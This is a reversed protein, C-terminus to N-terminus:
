KEFNTKLSKKKTELLKAADKRKDRVLFARYWKRKKLDNTRAEIESKEVRQSVEEKRKKQAEKINSLSATVGAKRQTMETDVKSRENNRSEEAGRIKESAKERISRIEQQAEQSDPSRSTNSKARQIQEAEETRARTLTDQYSAESTAIKTARETEISRAKNALEEPLRKAAEKGFREGKKKSAARDAEAQNESWRNQRDQTSKNQEKGSKGGLIKAGALGGLPSRLASGIATQGFRTKGISKNLRDAVGGPLRMLATGAAKKGWKMIGSAGAGGISKAAVLAFIIAGIVIMFNILLGIFAVPTEGKLIIALMGPFTQDSVNTLISRSLMLAVWLLALFVPAFLAQEILTNWWKKSYSDKPLAMAIFALPSLIMLFIIIVYRSILMISSAFFVFATILFLVSALGTLLVIALSDNAKALFAKADPANYFTSMGIPKVFAGSIGGTGGSTSIANHFSTAVINSADVIVKTFFLSFNLLLAIIIVHVLLKKTNISDLRLITGIAIYLIIFIFLINALDRLTTWAQYIGGGEQLLSRLNMAMNVITFSMVENLLMGSVGLIIGFFSIVLSGIDSLLGRICVPIDIYFWGICAGIKATPVPVVNVTPQQPAPPGVQPATQAQVVGDEIFPLPALVFSLTIIGLFILSFLKRNKFIM